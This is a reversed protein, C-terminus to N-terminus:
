ARFWRELVQAVGDDAVDATIEDALDRIEDVANGMAVSHAAWTLMERDNHGDGIALTRERPVGLAIRLRELAWGKSVGRRSVTLWPGFEGHVWSAEPVELRALLRLMEEQSGTPWWGNLRPTPESSLAGHDVLLYEGISFEGPSLGTAWTGVGVKEVAFIMEPFLARLARVAPAPDFAQVALPVDQAIDIHVAGNSCLAHGDILGLEALVPRTTLLTRGTTVVVHAGAAVAARVAEVVRASIASGSELLTGDVDLAILQPGGGLAVM